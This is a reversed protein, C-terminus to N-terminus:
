LEDSIRSSSSLTREIHQWFKVQGFTESLSKMEFQKPSFIELCKVNDSSSMEIEFGNFSPISKTAFNYWLDILSKIMLKEEESYSIKRLVTKFILLVDEGHSIGLKLFHIYTTYKKAHFAISPTQLFLNKDIMNIESVLTTPQTQVTNM